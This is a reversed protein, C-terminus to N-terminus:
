AFEIKLLQVAGDYGADGSCLDLERRAIIYSQLKAVKQKHYSGFASDRLNRAKDTVFGCSQIMWV